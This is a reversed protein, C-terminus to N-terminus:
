ISGLKSDDVELRRKKLKRSRLRAGADRDVNAADTCAKRALEYELQELPEIPHSEISFLADADSVRRRKLV